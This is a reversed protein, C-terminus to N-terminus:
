ALSRCRRRDLKDHRRQQPTQWQGVAMRRDRPYTARISRDRMGRHDLSRFQPRPTCVREGFLGTSTVFMEVGIVGIYDLQTLLRGAILVADTRAALSLRAPVTTTHLIGDKHVNEGPDFCVVEGDVSRAGIVSIERDFTIRAEAVAPTALSQWAQAAQDPNDVNTQGKGDYGFRRTKLIAPTGVAEVAAIADAANNIKRWPAVPLGLGQVFAKEAARDQSVALARQCPRIPVLPKLADLAAVPVNEFEYTVVDVNQAFAALAATDDFSARTVAAAVDGAPPDEGPEFVHAKMGLRAAAIALM